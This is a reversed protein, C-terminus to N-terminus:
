VIRGEKNLLGHNRLTGYIGPNNWRWGIDNRCYLDGTVFERIMESLEIKAVLEMSSATTLTFPMPGFTEMWFENKSIMQKKGIRKFCPVNGIDRYEKGCLLKPWEESLVRQPKNGDLKNVCASIAHRFRWAIDNPFLCGNILKLCLSWFPDRLLVCVNDLQTSGLRTMCEFVKFGDSTFIGSVDFWGIYKVERFWPTLKKFVSEVISRPVGVTDHIGMEGTEPGIDGACLKTYEFDTIMPIFPEPQRYDVFGAFAIEFGELFEEVVVPLERYPWSKVTRRMAEFDECIEVQRDGSRMGKVVYKGNWAPVLLDVEDGRPVRVSRSRPVGLANMISAQYERDDELRAAEPSVCFLALKDHFEEYLFGSAADFIFNTIVIEPKEARIREIMMRYFKMNVDKDLKDGRLLMWPDEDRDRTKGTRQDYEDFNPFRVVNVEPTKEWTDQEITCPRGYWGNTFIKM